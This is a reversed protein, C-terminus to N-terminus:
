VYRSHNTGTFQLAKQGCAAMPALAQSGPRIQTFVGEQPV